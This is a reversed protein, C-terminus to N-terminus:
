LSDEELLHVVEDLRKQDLICNAAAFIQADKVKAATFATVQVFPLFHLYRM